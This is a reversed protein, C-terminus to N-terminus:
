YGHSAAWRSVQAQDIKYQEALGKSCALLRAMDEPHRRGATENVLMPVYGFNPGAVRLIYEAVERCFKEDEPLAHLVSGLFPCVQLPTILYFRGCRKLLQEQNLQVSPLEDPGVERESIIKLNLLSNIVEHVPANELRKLVLGVFECQSFFEERRCNALFLAVGVLIVLIIVIAITIIGEMESEKSGLSRNADRQERVSRILPRVGSLRSTM